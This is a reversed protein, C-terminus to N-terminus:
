KSCFIAHDLYTYNFEVDGLTVPSVQNLIDEDVEYWGLASQITCKNNDPSMPKFCIDELRTQNSDAGALQIVCVCV